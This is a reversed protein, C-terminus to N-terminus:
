GKINEDNKAINWTVPIEADGSGDGKQPVYDFELKAFNIAVTETLREDGGSGGTQVSTIIAEHLKLKVYELPKGGAKRVTLQAEKIHIGKLAHKFLIPTARDIWKTLTLDQVNAKGAGGGPGAHMTGTQTVGWSWTLVEIEDKHVKDTADGKIGDIKLFMDTAM